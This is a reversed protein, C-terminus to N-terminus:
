MAESPSFAQNIMARHSRGLSDVAPRDGRQGIFPLPQGGSSRISVRVLLRRYLCCVSGLHSSSSGVFLLLVCRRPGLPRLRAALGLSLYSEV